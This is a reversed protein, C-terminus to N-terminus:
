PGCLEHILGLAEDQCNCRKCMVLSCDMNCNTCTHMRPVLSQQM